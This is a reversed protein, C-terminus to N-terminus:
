LLPDDVFGAHRPPSQNHRAPGRNTPDYARPAFGKRPGSRGTVLSSETIGQWSPTDELFRLQRVAAAPDEGVEVFLAEDGSAGLVRPSSPGSAALLQNRVPSRARSDSVARPSSAEIADTTIVRPPTLRPDSLKASQSGRNKQKQAATPGRSVRAATSSAAAAETSKNAFASGFLSPLVLLQRPQLEHQPEGERHLGPVAHWILYWLAFACLVYQSVFLLAGGAERPTKSDLVWGTASCLMAVARIAEVFALVVSHFRANHPQVIALTMSRVTLIGFTIWGIARRCAVPSALAAGEMVSMLIAYAVDGVFLFRYQWRYTVFFTGFREVYAYHVFDDWADGMARCLSKVRRRHNRHQPKSGNEMTSASSESWDSDTSSTSDSAVNLTCPKMTFANVYATVQEVWMARFGVWWRRIKQKMWGPPRSPKHQKRQYRRGGRLQRRRKRRAKQKLRRDHASLLVDDDESDGDDGSLLPDGKLDQVRATPSGPSSRTPTKMEEADDDVFLSFPDVVRKSRDAGFRYVLLWVIFGLLLIWSLFLALSLGAAVPNQAASPVLFRAWLIAFGCRVSSPLLLLTVAFIGPLRIYHFTEAPTFHKLSGVFAAAIIFGLVLCWLWGLNVIVCGALGNTIEDGYKFRPIPSMVVGFPDQVGECSNLPFLGAGISGEMMLSASAAPSLVLALGALGAAVGTVADAHEVTSHVLRKMRLTSPDIFVSRITFPEVLRHFLQKSFTVWIPIPEVVDNSLKFDPVVQLEIMLTRNNVFISDRTMFRSLFPELQSAFDGQPQLTIHNLFFDRVADSTDSPADVPIPPAGRTDRGLKYRGTTDMLTNWFEDKVAFVFRRLEASEAFTLEHGDDATLIERVLSDENVHYRGDIVVVPPADSVTLTVETSRTLSATSTLTFSETIPRTRSPTLTATVTPLVTLTGTSALSTSKTSSFTMTHTALATHTPTPFPTNSSTFDRSSSLTPTKTLALTASSTIDRSYTITRSRNWPLTRTRTLPLSHTESANAPRRATVCSPEWVLLVVLLIGAVATRAVSINGLGHMDTAVVRKHSSIIM